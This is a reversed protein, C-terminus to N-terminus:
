FEITVHIGDQYSGAGVDQREFVRGYVPIVQVGTLKVRESFTSTGRSGDGWVDRFNSDLYLNYHLADYGYVSNMHRYEFTGSSGASIQITIRQTLNIGGSIEWCDYSVSSLTVVPSLATVDYRGFAIPTASITCGLPKFLNATISQATVPRFAALGGSSLVLGAVLLRLGSRRV